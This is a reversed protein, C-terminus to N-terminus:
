LRIQHSSMQPDHRHVNWHLALWKRQGPGIIGNLNRGHLRRYEEFQSIAPKVDVTLLLPNVALDGVDFLRHIDRRLLLGGNDHHEGTAAYSYLHAAELAAAPAPGTFACNPGTEALLRARFARQGVRARASVMTFGGRVARTVRGLEATSKVLQIARGDATAQVALYFDSWRLSRISLQSLPSDCLGRLTQGNLCGELDVWGAEHMSRYTVVERERSFPEDFDRRCKNCRWKPELNKRAKIDARGCDSFPCRHLTKTEVATDIRSIVTAGLLSQRDWLALYDGVSVTAHNPVTDDWSYHEKPDDDYGDNNGRQRSDGVSLALWARPHLSTGDANASQNSGRSRTDARPKLSLSM